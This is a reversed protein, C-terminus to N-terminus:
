TWLSRRIKILRGIMEDEKDNLDAELKQLDVWLQHENPDHARKAEAWNHLMDDHVKHQRLREVNWWYHIAKVELYTMRQTLLHPNAQVDEESPCYMNPLEDKVFTNLINFLAYVMKSDSDLWGFRYSYKGKQKPQRLDLMHYRRSPVVHSAIYHWVDHLRRKIRTNFWFPVTEALFYRIPYEKRMKEDWDEWTHSDDGVQRFLAMPLANHDDVTWGLEKPSPLRFIKWLQTRKM